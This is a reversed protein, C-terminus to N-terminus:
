TCSVILDKAVVKYLVQPSQWSRIVYQKCGLAGQAQHCAPRGQPGGAAKAGHCAGGRGSQLPVAEVTRPQKNLSNLGGPVQQRGEHQNFQM